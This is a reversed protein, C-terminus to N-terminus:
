SRGNEYGPFIKLLASELELNVNLEENKLDKRCSPCQTWESKFARKLCSKCINHGCSTTVPKFTVDQCCLCQFNEEVKNTFDLKTYLETQRVDEWLKLNPEDLEMLRLIEEDIEYRTTKKPRKSAPTMGESEQEEQVFDDDTIEECNTSERTRKKVLIKTKADKIKAKEALAELHGEPYICTFGNREIWAKGEKTWPAPSEDDRRFLYRWVIFGSRGKEPWYKVVKYIGDYRCGEDPAFSSHKKLKESRVVRIPKGKRWNRAEGGKEKDVKCDCSFALALNTKDLIQNFSQEATRKNGSLDRGGAGVFNSTTVIM